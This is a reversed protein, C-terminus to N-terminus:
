ADKVLSQDEVVMDCNWLCHSSCIKLNCGMGEWVIGRDIRGVEM